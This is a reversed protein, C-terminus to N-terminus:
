SATCRCDISTLALAATRPDTAVIADVTVGRRQLNDGERDGASSGPGSIMASDDSLAGHTLRQNANQIDTLGVGFEDHGVGIGSADCGLVLPCRSGDLSGHSTREIDDADLSPEAFCERRKRVLRGNFREHRDGMAGRDHQEIRLVLNM